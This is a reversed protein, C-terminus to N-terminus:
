QQQTVVSVVVVVVDVLAFAASPSMGLEERPALNVEHCNRTQQNTPQKNVLLQDYNNDKTVCVCYHHGNNNCSNNFGLVFLLCGWRWVAVDNHNDHNIHSNNVIVVM